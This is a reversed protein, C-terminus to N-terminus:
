QRSARGWLFVRRSTSIIALLVTARVTVREFPWMKKPGRTGTLAGQDGDKKMESM